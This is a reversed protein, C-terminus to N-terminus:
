CADEIFTEIDKTIADAIQQHGAANPHGDTASIRGTDPYRDILTIPYREAVMQPLQRDNFGLWLLNDMADFYAMDDWFWGPPNVSAGQGTTAKRYWYLYDQVAYRYELSTAPNPNTEPEHDNSILLYVYGDAATADIAERVDRANWGPFGFLTFQADPFVIALQNAWTETDDVGWGFSMSDGIILIGCDSLSTDPVSRQSNMVTASWDSFQHIGDALVPQVGNYEYRSMLVRLDGMYQRTGHPDVMNLLGEVGIAPICVVIIFIAIVSINRRM